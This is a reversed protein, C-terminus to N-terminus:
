ATEPEATEMQVDDGTHDPGATAETTESEPQPQRGFEDGDFDTLMRLVGVANGQMDLSNHQLLVQATRGDDLKVTMQEDRHLELMVKGTHLSETKYFIRKPSLTHNDNMAVIKVEGFSAVPDKRGRMYLLAKM